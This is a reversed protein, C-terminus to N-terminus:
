AKRPCDGARATVVAIGGLSRVAVRLQDDPSAPVWRAFRDGPAVAGDATWLVSAAAPGGVLRVAIADGDWRAALSVRPPDFLPLDRTRRAKPATDRWHDILAPDTPQDPAANFADRPLPDYWGADPPLMDYWGADSPSVDSPADAPKADAPKADAPKADTPGSDSVGADIRGGDYPLPDVVVSGADYPLPDYWAADYLPPDVVIPGEDSSTNADSPRGADYPLPDFWGGSDYPPPDVTAADDDSKGGCGPTGVVIAGALAMAAMADRLMRPPAAAARPEIKGDVYARMDGLLDDFAAHWVRDHASIVMALRLTALEVGNRNAMDATEAIRLAHELFGATERSVERTLEKARRALSRARDSSGGYFHDIVQAMYGLGMYRNAVGRPHFNRERFAASCIRFLLETRDDRIRYDWGLYSGTLTADDHLRNFLPTGHYAEARCFNVPNEAFERMFAINTRVDDLTADPEFLLLNYCGFIGADNLASIARRVQEGRTGRGLHDQGNQSANEVGVYLRIMGLKKLDRALDVTLSEPRCKGILGVKGVSLRDLERRIATVRELSDQPRPLLFNDDHFCFISPGGARHWLSAMELAINEPSRLRLKRGGGHAHADRYFTTIACFACSGWCGRGGSIPIFPIGLHRTHNRYRAAFPLDDLNQAAQRTATRAPKGGASRVALGPVQTLPRGRELADALDVVTREGDHLVVSDVARDLTLIEAFAMTALQGGCTLHGRYGAKRLELALTLFDRARHQFQIGLAILGPSGGVIRGVVDRLEPLDNYAVVDVDHGALGLSAAIMGIGLNEELDAGVLTTKM